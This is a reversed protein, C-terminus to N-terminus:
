QRWRSLPRACESGRGIAHQAFGMPATNHCLSPQLQLEQRCCMLPVAQRVLRDFGGFDGREGKKTVSASNKLIFSWCNKGSIKAATAAACFMAATAACFLLLLSM